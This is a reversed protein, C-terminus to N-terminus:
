LTAKNHIQKFITYFGSVTFYTSSDSTVRYSRQRNVEKDLWEKSVLIAFYAILEDSHLETHPSHLSVSFQISLLYRFLLQQTTGICYYADNADRNSISSRDIVSAIHASRALRLISIDCLIFSKWKLLIFM